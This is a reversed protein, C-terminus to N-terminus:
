LAFAFVYAKQGSGQCLLCLESAPIGPMPLPEKTGGGFPGGFYGSNGSFFVFIQTM